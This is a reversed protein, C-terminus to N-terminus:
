ATPASSRTCSRVSWRSSVPSSTLAKRVQQMPVHHTRRMSALV